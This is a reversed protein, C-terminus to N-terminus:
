ENDPISFTGTSYIERFAQEKNELLFDLAEPYKLPIEFHGVAAIAESTLPVYVAHMPASGFQLAIWVRNFRNTTVLCPQLHNYWYFKGDITLGNKSFQLLTGEDELTWTDGLPITSPSFDYRKLEAAIEWARTKPVTLGVAVCLLAILGFLVIAVSGYKADDISMLIVITALLLGCLNGFGPVIRYNILFRVPNMYNRELKPPLIGSIFPLASDKAYFGNEDDYVGM